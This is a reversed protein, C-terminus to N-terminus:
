LARVPPHSAFQFVDEANGRVTKSGKRSECNTVDKGSTRNWAFTSSISKWKRNIYTIRKTHRQTPCTARMPYLLSTKIPLRSSFPGHPRRLLLLSSLILISKWSIIQSAHVPNIAQESPLSLHRASTFATEIFHQSNRAYNLLQQSRLFFEAGHLIDWYIYICM